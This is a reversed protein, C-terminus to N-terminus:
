ELSGSILVVPNAAVHIHLPCASRRRPFERFDLRVELSAAQHIRNNVLAFRRRNIDLHPASYSSCAIGQRLFGCFSRASRVTLSTSM